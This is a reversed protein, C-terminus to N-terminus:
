NIVENIKGWLENDFSSNAFEVIGAPDGCRVVVMNKSPIVYIKQDQAGLACFMDDPGNPILPGNIITQNTTGLLSEKGNLWWLYGYAKNLDQSSNTMLEHYEKPYITEGNWEGENLALLGFRAMSRTTSSFINVDLLTSWSGNMGIKDQIKQKCYQKFNLGTANTIINQTQTFAGQHYAWQNGADVEYQMCLPATCTWPIFDGIKNQLGTTMTIHNKVTILDQKDEPAFSWNEGLYTSTKEDIDLFEVIEAIGVM